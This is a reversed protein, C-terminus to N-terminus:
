PGVPGGNPGNRARRRLQEWFEPTAEISPEDNDRRTLLAELEGDSEFTLHAPGGLDATDAADARILAEIYQELNAHGAEDARRQALAKLDEPIEISVRAM